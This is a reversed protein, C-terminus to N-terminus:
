PFAQDGKQENILSIIKRIDFKLAVDAHQVHTSKMATHKLSEGVLNVANKGTVDHIRQRGSFRRLDLGVM